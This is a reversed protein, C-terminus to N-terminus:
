IPEPLRVIFKLTTRLAHLNGPHKKPESKEQLQHDKAMIQEFAEVADIHTQKLNEHLQRTDSYIENDDDTDLYGFSKVQGNQM